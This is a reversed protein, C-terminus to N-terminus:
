PRQPATQRRRRLLGLLGLGGLLAVSPEPIPAIEFRLQQVQGIDNGTRSATFSTEATQGTALNIGQSVTTRNVTEGAITLTPTPIDNNRWRIAVGTLDITFSSTIDVNTANHIGVTFGLPGEQEEWWAANAGGNVAIGNGGGNNINAGAAVTIRLKDAAGLGLGSIDYVYTFPSVSGAGSNTSSDISGSAFAGTGNTAFDTIVTAAGASSALAIGVVLSCPLFVHKM